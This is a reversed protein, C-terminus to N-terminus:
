ANFIDRGTFAEFRQYSRHFHLLCEGERFHRVKLFKLQVVVDTDTRSEQLDDKKAIVHNGNKDKITTGMGILVDSAYEIESTERFSTIDIGNKASERNLACLCLVVARNKVAIEKLINLNDNIQVRIDKSKGHLHPLRQLYDMIIILTCHELNKQSKIAEIDAQIRRATLRTDATGFFVNSLCPPEFLVEPKIKCKSLDSMPIKFNQSIYRQILANNSMELNYLLVVHGQEAMNSGMHLGLATKGTGPLGGIVGMQEQLFGGDLRIDLIQIGTGVKLPETLHNSSYEEKWKKFAESGSIIVIEKESTNEPASQKVEPIDEYQYKLSQEYCQNIENDEMPPLCLMNNMLLLISLVNVGLAYKKSWVQLRCAHKFLVDNRKGEAIPISLLEDIEKAQYVPIFIDPMPHLKDPLCILERNETLQSPLVIYGRASLRYDVVLSSVTLMKTGQSKVKGTDRFMFQYGHPTKICIHKINCRILGEYIAKGKESDDVDILILGKKIVLGVWGGNLSYGLAKMKDMSPESQWKGVPKKAEQYDTNGSCYGKLKILKVDDELFKIINMFDENYKDM